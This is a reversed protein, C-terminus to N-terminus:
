DANTFNLKNCSNTATERQWEKEEEVKKASMMVEAQRDKPSSGRFTLAIAAGLIALLDIWTQHNQGYFCGLTLM